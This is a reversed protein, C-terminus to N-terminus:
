SDDALSNSDALRVRGHSPSVPLSPSPSLSESDPSESESESGVVVVTTTCTLRSPPGSAWQCLRLSVPLSLSLSLSIELVNKVSWCVNQKSVCDSATNTGNGTCYLVIVLWEIHSSAASVLAVDAARCLGVAIAKNTRTLPEFCVQSPISRLFRRARARISDPYSFHLCMIGTRMEALLRPGRRFSAAVTVRCQWSEEAVPFGPLIHSFGAGPMRLAITAVPTCCAGAAAKHGVSRAIIKQVRM